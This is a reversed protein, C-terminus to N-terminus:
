SSSNLKQILPRMKNDWIEPTIPGLWLWHIKLDGDLIVTIPLGSQGLANPILGAYDMGVKKFPNGHKQLYPTLDKPKDQLAIGYLPTNTTAAIEMLVPHEALCPTCWSAFVNLIMVDGRMDASGFSDGELSEMGFEPLHSPPPEFSLGGFSIMAICIVGIFLAINLFILPKLSKQPKSM